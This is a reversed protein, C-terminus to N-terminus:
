HIFPLMFYIAVLLMVLPIYIFIARFLWEYASPIGTQISSSGIGTIVSFTSTVVSMSVTGSSNISSPLASSNPTSGFGPDNFAVGSASGGLAQISGIVFFMVVFVLLYYVLIGVAWKGADFQGM